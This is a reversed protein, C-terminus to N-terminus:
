DKEFFVKGLFPHELVREVSIPCSNVTVNYSDHFLEINLNNLVNQFEEDFKYKDGVIFYYIQNGEKPNTWKTIASIFNYRRAFGVLKSKLNKEYKLSDELDKAM